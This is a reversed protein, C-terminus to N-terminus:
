GLSYYSSIIMVTTGSTYILSACDGPKVQESRERVEKSYISTGTKLFDDFTFIEAFGDNDCTPVGDEPWYVVIAKLNPLTNRISAIKAANAGGQCLCM